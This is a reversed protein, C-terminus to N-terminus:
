RHSDTAALGAVYNELFWAAPKVPHSARVVSGDPSKRLRSGGERRGIGQGKGDQGGCAVRLEEMPRVTGAGGPFQVPQPRIGWVVLSLFVMWECVSSAQWIIRYEGAVDTWRGCWRTVAPLRYPAVATSNARTAGIKKTIHRPVMSNPRQRITVSSSVSAARLPQRLPIMSPVVVCCIRSAAILKRDVTPILPSVTRTIILSPAPLTVSA